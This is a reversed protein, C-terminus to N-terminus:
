SQLSSPVRSSPRGVVYDISLDNSSTPFSLAMGVVTPFGDPNDFLPARNDRKESPRSYPSIPYIVLLGQSPSRSLRVAAGVKMVKGGDLLSQAKDLQAQDMGWAEVYNGLRRGSAGTVLAGVSHSAKNLRTRSIRNVRLLPNGGFGETGLYPDPNANGAIAVTWNTLEDARQAQLLVYNSLNAMDFGENGQAAQFRQLFPVIYSAPVNVWLPRGDQITSPADLHNFFQSTLSLNQDLLEASDLDFHITQILQGSYSLKVHSGTGMRNRATVLMAPHARIKPAMDLPTLGRAAYTGIEDRLDDEVLSLHKFKEFIEESTWLRTLDAYKGRYGFWRGMQLLTDYAASSRVYFSVLLNELTLGRSLRNGGVLILKQHPDADYDLMDQSSSNLALVKVPTRSGLLHDIGPLLADYSIPPFRNFDASTPVFDEEWMLRLTQSLKERSYTWENVLEAFQGVLATKLDNQKQISSSTHILMSSLQTGNRYDNAASALIWNLLAAMLSASVTPKWLRAMSPPPALSAVENDPIFRIVNLKSQGNSEEGNGFFRSAGFYTAPRSLSIIFESPFLDRGHAATSADPDILVNAFPTATYAVYSVRRFKNTIERILGNITSPDIENADSTEDVDDATLDTQETLPTSTNISAQDAEDDIILTPTDAPVRELWKALRRLVTANKKVVMLGRSGQALPGPNTAPKFDGGEESSTIGWWEQAPMPYGVSDPGDVLGLERDLRIQTQQRLSNHIGSLVIVLKYGRDAAKAVVATFNATKGSQVYGLVLGRVDFPAPKGTPDILLPDEIHSLVLDSEKHLSNVEDLSRGKKDILFTRLRGWYYGESSEYDKFWPRAGGGRPVLSIPELFEAEDDGTGLPDEFRRKLDAHTNTPALHLHDSYTGGFTDTHVTIVRQWKDLTEQFEGVSNM